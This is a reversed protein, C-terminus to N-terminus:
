VDAQDKRFAQAAEISSFWQITRRTTSDGCTMCLYHEYFPLVYQGEVFPTSCDWCENVIPNYTSM